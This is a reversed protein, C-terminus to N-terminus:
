KDLKSIKAGELSLNAMLGREGFVFGIVPDSITTSDIEGAVGTTVLAVSGDVGVEWGDSSQFQALAEDTMFLIMEVRAQAGIQLGISASMTNYYGVSRGHVRLAGEGYEGGIGFGAKIVNPFVLVGKAQALLPRGAPVEQDFRTLAAVVAADIEIASAAAAPQSALPSLWLGLALFLAM